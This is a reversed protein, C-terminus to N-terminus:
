IIKVSLLTFSTHLLAVKKSILTIAHEKHCSAQIGDLGTVNPHIGVDTIEMVEGRGRSQQPNAPYHAKGRGRDGCIFM